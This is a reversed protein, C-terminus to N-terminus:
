LKNKIKEMIGEVEGPSYSRQPWLRIGDGKLRPIVHFHFHPVVQGSIPDNNVGINYGKCDLGKKIALGVKKVVLIVEALLEEPIEEFNAFHEKPIVLTHGPNVPSIDLFALVRDDEYVKNSPITGEVIKCFICDTM